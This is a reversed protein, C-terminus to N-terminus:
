HPEGEENRDRMIDGWPDRLEALGSPVARMRDVVQSLTQSELPEHNNIVFRKLSWAGNEDRQWTASGEFRREAGDLIYPGLTKAIARSAVCQHVTEGTDIFVAVRADNVVRGGVGQVIGILAGPQEVPLIEIPKPAHVGPFELFTAGAGIDAYTAFTNDLALKKNLARYANMAEAAAIGDRIAALREQIKPFATFGVDHMIQVCGDELSVFHVDAKEGLMAALDAMYEALRAMPITEPQFADIKFSLRVADHAM